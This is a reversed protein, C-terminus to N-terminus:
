DMGRSLILHGVAGDLRALLGAPDLPGSVGDVEISRLTFGQGAFGALFELPDLIARAAPEHFETVITVEPSRDLLAQAGRLVLPESGEVDLKIFQVAPVNALHQDLTSGRVTLEHMRWPGGHHGPQVSGGGSFEHNFRFQLAAPEAHLAAEEVQVLSDYGNVAISKRLKAVLGPNAEFAHVRGTPGVWDALLLTFYGFNAGADVARMGPRVLPRIAAEIWPEWRGELMLHSAISVDRTDVYIRHGTHLRTIAEHDGLYTAQGRALQEIRAELAQVRGTLRAIEGAADALPGARGGRPPRPAGDHIGFRRPVDGPAQSEQELRRLLLDRAHAFLAEDPQLIERVHAEEARTMGAEELPMRETVMMRGIEPPALDPRGRRYIYGLLDQLQETTGAHIRDLRAKARQLLTDLSVFGAPDDSRLGLIYLQSHAAREGYPSAAWAGFGVRAAFRMADDTPLGEAVCRRAFRYASFMREFPDRFVTVADFEPLDRDELQHAYFHGALLDMRALDADSTRAFEHHTAFILVQPWGQQLAHTFATGATKPVHIFALKRSM